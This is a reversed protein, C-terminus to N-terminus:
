WRPARISSTCGACTRSSTPSTPPRARARRRPVLRLLQQHRHASVPAYTEQARSARGASCTSRRRCRRTSTRSWSARPTWGRRRDDPERRPDASLENAVSHTIVSPHRRAELVTRRVSGLERERGAARACSCTATTSRRRAGSSSARRTSATSCGSTSCTTRAPSTRASRRAPRRRDARHRRRQAGPRPRARGGPDVRRAADAAPRQAVAARRAGARPAPRRPRAARREVQDGVRVTLRADYLQPKEPAWLKPDGPSRCASACARPRAPSSRACASRARPRGARRRAPAPARAVHPRVPRRRAARSGATSSRGVRPVHGRLRRRASPWGACRRGRGAPDLTCRARSAAGTGGARASARRAATTSASPAAPEAGGQRLGTPRSAHVAHVPRRESGLSRGNLFVESAGACATSACRGAAARRQAPRRLAAPVLGDHRRLAGRGAQRRPRAPRARAEVPGDAARRGGLRPRARGPRAAGGRRRRPRRSRAVLALLCSPRVICSM